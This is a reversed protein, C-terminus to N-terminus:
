RARELARAEALLKRAVPDGPELELARQYHEIAPAIRGQDQLASGLNLHARPYDPAIEIALEYHRIAADLEGRRHRAMGLNNHARQHRPEIRLAIEFQEIAADSDGRADLTVGLNNRANVDGARHRLAERYLEIAEDLRGRERLLNALNYGARGRPNLALARRFHAEADEGRGQERLLSGLNNHAMAHDPRRELVRAYHTVAQELEGKARLANGLNLHIEVDDPVAELARRYERIADDLRGLSRLHNAVNYRITPNRPVAEVTHQFLTFSDRWHRVQLWSGATLAALAALAAGAALADIRAVRARLAAVLDAGGWAVVIFIGILPVYTYRDALAQHGVQVLGIVPLLTGLYWLWGMPLYRRRRAAFAAASLGAVLAAAAAVQWPALPVGGAEPIYPHPYFMALDAPWVTKGLYTVVAVVANAARFALPLPQETRMAGAAQQLLLTAIGCAAALALLPLKELLLRQLGSRGLPWYDLLLVVLPLTVLMPKSMLALAFCGVVLLYRAAGGRRVWGLYSLLALLAACTSLVDRRESIWAVSAVHLPHLAFHAAVLASRSVEGTARRLFLYLLLANLAHLLVSVAHHGAPDQGFLEYDLMHSLWTLPHWNGTGGASFAWAIGARTLGARVQPNGTVHLGDDWNVFEFGVTQGYVLLTASALLACIALDRRM